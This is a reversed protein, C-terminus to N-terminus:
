LAFNRTTASKWEGEVFHFLENKLKNLDNRFETLCSENEKHEDHIFQEDQTFINEDLLVFHKEHEAIKRQMDRLTYNLFLKVRKDLRLLECYEQQKHARLFSKDLLKSLLSLETKSFELESLWEITSIYIDHPNFQLRSEKAFTTTLTEM